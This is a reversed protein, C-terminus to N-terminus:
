FYKKYDVRKNINNQKINKYFTKIELNHKKLSIYTILHYTIRDIKKIFEISKNNNEIKYSKVIKDAEKIITPILYFDNNTINEQGRKSETFINSHVKEIHKFNNRQLSLNFKEINYGTDKKIKKAVIKNIKGYYLKENNSLINRSIKIFKDIDKEKKLIIIKGNKYNEKEKKTYKDLGSFIDYNTNFVTEKEKLYFVEDLYIDYFM